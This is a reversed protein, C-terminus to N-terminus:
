RFHVLAHHLLVADGAEMHLPVAGETRLTTTEDDEKPEFETGKDGDKRRFWRKVGQQHSGPVAWLCGNQEHCNELAWWIGVVSQPNTYLFTGDQHPRVEGGFEAQKTIYMSQVAIPRQYGLSKCIGAVYPSYSVQEFVDDLDHM